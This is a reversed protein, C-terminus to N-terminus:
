GIELTFYRSICFPMNNKDFLFDSIKKLNATIFANCTCSVKRDIQSIEGIETDICKLDNDKSAPHHRVFWIIQIGERSPEASVTFFLNPLNRLTTVKLRTTSIVLKAM